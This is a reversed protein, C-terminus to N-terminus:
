HRFWWLGGLVTAIGVALLGAGAVPQPLWYSSGAMNFLLTDPTMVCEALLYVGAFITLLGLAIEGLAKLNLARPRAPEDGSGPVEDLSVRCAPCAWESRPLLIAV